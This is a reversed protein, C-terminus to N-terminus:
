KANEKNRKEIEILRKILKDADKITLLRLLKNLKSNQIEWSSLRKRYHTFTDLIYSFIAEDSWNFNYKAIKFIISKQKGTMKGKEYKQGTIQRAIEYLQKYIFKADKLSLEKVSSLGREALEVDIVTDDGCIIISLAHLKANLFHRYSKYGQYM